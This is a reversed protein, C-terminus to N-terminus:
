APDSGVSSHLPFTTRRLAASGMPVLRVPVPTGNRRALRTEIALPPHAWPFRDGPTAAGALQVGADAHALFNWGASDRASLLYEHLGSPVGEVADVDARVREIAEFPLAFVLPGWRLYAETGDHQVCSRVEFGFSLRVNERGSWERMVRIERASRVVDGSEVGHVRVEGSGCPVRLRLEFRIPRQPEVTIEVEDSFPYGTREKIEVPVGAVTTRVTCPGYATLCLGDTDSLRYWMASLYYPMARPMNLACCAAAEHCASFLERGDDLSPDDAARRNDRTLYAVARNVPHLRAGQVANFVLREIRDGLSASGNPEYCTLRGLSIMTEVNACTESTRHGSGAAGAVFELSGIALGGGPNTHRALKALVNAAAQAHASDGSCHAAVRPMALAEAVHAAHDFWARRPDRMHAVTLDTFFEAGSSSYDDYLWVAADAYWSDATLRHLWELSDMYGVGHATGGDAGPRGFYTSRRYHNITAHVSGAVADLVRSDGTYEYWALLAQFARSQTWLEGDFGVAPFRRQPRYISICGTRACASLVRDVWGAVRELWPEDGILIATRVLGDMWYGEHEGAWWAKEERGRSGRVWTGPDRNQAAFLEATVNSSAAPFRGTLGDVLDAEMQARIWGEPRVAGVPLPDLPRVAAEPRSATRGRGTM